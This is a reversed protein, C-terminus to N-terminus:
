DFTGTARGLLMFARASRTETLEAIDQDSATKEFETFTHDFKRIFHHASDRFINDQRMRGATLALSSRDRIGGIVAISKGREGQAFRRWIEPRARDPILDDMYIGDQSLLTLVDQAAQILQSVNRDQLASRLARFGEKDDATEPFHLARIFDAVSLPPSLMDAPTGLELSAQAQPPAPNRAILAAKQRMAEQEARPRISNFTSLTTETKRQAAAIEDLKQEVAPRLGLIGSQQQQIHSHRMANIASQLRESEERMIRNSRSTTAAVWILAVPMFVAIMTMVFRLTDIRPTGDARESGAFVFFMTVLLLWLVSLVGAVVETTSIQTAGVRRTFVGLDISKPEESEAM